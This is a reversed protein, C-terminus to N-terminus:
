ACFKRDFKIYKNRLLWRFFVFVLRRLFRLFFEFFLAAWVAALPLADAAVLQGVQFRFHRLVQVGM